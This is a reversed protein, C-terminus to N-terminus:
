FRPSPPQESGGSMSAIQAIVKLFCWEDNDLAISASEIQRVLSFFSRINEKGVETWPLVPPIAQGGNPRDVVISSTLWRAAVLKDLLRKIPPDQPSLFFEPM